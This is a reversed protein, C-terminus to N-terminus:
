CPVDFEFRLQVGRRGFEARLKSMQEEYFPPATGTIPDRQPYWHAFLQRYLDRLEADSCAQLRRDIVLARM